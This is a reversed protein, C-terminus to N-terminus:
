DTGEEKSLPQSGKESVELVLCILVSLIMGYYIGHFAFAEPAGLVEVFAFGSVAGFFAGLILSFVIRGVSYPM